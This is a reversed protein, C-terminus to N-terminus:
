DWNGPHRTAWHPFDRQRTALWDDLVPSPQPSTLRDIGVIGPPPATTVKENWAAFTQVLPGATTPRDIVTAFILHLPSVPGLGNGPVAIPIGAPHDDWGWYTTTIRQRLAPDTLTPHAHDAFGPQNDWDWHGTTLHTLTLGIYATLARIVPRDDDTFLDDPHHFLTTIIHELARLSHASSTM